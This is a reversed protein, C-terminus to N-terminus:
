FRFTGSKKTMVCLCHIFPDRGELPVYQGRRELDVTRLFQTVTQVWCHWSLIGVNIVSPFFTTVQQIICVCIVTKRDTKVSARRHSNMLIIM